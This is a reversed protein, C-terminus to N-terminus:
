AGQPIFTNTKTIALITLKTITSNKPTKIGIVTSFNPISGAVDAVINM